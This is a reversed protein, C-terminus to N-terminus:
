TLNLLGLYRVAAYALGVLAVWLVPRSGGRWIFVVSGILALVPFVVLDLTQEFLFLPMLGGILILAGVVKKGRDLGLSTYVTRVGAKRDEDYGDVDTVMSGIVLGLFMFAGILLGNSSFNPFSVAGTLYPVPGSVISFPTLYGFLFALFTGLGILLPSLLHEKFRIPKLSYAAGLLVIVSIIIAQELSLLFSVAVAIFILITSINWLLAPEVLGSALSRGGRDPRDSDKDSLDNWITSVQWAVVAAIIAPGAFCLNVWYPRELIKSVLDLSAAEKWGTVIGAAVIAGFFVTQAPRMSKIVDKLKERLAFSSLAIVLVTGALLYYLLLFLHYQCYRVETFSPFEAIDGVFGVPLFTGPTAVIFLSLFTFFILLGIRLVTMSRESLTVLKDRQTWISYAFLAFLIVVVEMGQGVHFGEGSFHLLANLFDTVSFYAYNQNLGGIFHDIWPPLIIIWYFMSVYNITRRVGRGSFASLLFVLGIFVVVYFSVHHAISFVWPHATTVFAQDLLYYESIDRILSVAIVFLFIGFLPLRDKEVWVVFRDVATAFREYAQSGAPGTM